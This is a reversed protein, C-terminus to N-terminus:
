LVHRSLDSNGVGGLCTLHGMQLLSFLLHFDVVGDMVPGPYLVVVYWCGNGLLLVASCDLRQADLEGVIVVGGEFLDGQRVKYRLQADRDVGDALIALYM